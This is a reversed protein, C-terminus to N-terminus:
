LTALYSQVDGNMGGIYPACAHLIIFFITWGSIEHAHTNVVMYAQLEMSYKVCADNPFSM